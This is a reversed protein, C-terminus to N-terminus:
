SARGIQTKVEKKCYGFYNDAIVTVIVGRADRATLKFANGGNYREDERQWCMGDLRQRETAADFHPLGADKKTVRTLHPALVVCGTHGTWHEVDLGADNEPLFPDGANGFISEVFALNSVLSGPAFFRLEMSKESSFGPVEPCVTPRLLLSVFCEAQEAQGSTFPLRLWARPPSLALQLMRAFVERPVSRKDDPVPLGGEAIHFIGQTTRRDSKPNHLVGQKVRYSSVIDSVFFDRDPPLSLARALGHRDLVFTQGPLRIPVPVQKLYDRLFDQIRQDAPCLYDALLRDTERHHLLLAGAMQEFETDTDGAVTPCGLSALKLNIYQLLQKDPYLPTASGLGLTRNLNM